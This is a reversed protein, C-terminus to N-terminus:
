TAPPATPRSALHTASCPPPAKHSRALSDPTARAAASRLRHVASRLSDCGSRGVRVQALQAYETSTIGVFVGAGGVVAAAAGGAGASGGALLAEGAAELLLRQQPDMLLAENDSIAFAAADFADIGDLFISFRLTDPPHPLVPSTLLAPLLAAATGGGCM